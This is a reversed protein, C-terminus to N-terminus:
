LHFYNNSHKEKHQNIEGVAMNTHLFFTIKMKNATRFLEHKIAVDFHLIM